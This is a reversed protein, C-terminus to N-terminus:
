FGLRGLGLIMLWLVISAVGAAVFWWNMRAWTLPQMRALERSKRTDEWILSM